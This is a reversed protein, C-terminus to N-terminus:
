TDVLFDCVIEDLYIMLRGIDLALDFRRIM